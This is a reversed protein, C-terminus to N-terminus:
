AAIANKNVQEIVADIESQVTVPALAPAELLAPDFTTETYNEGYCYAIFDM